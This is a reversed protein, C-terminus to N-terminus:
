FCWNVNISLVSKFSAGVHKPGYKRGDELPGIATSQATVLNFQTSTRENHEQIAYPWIDNDDPTHTHTQTHTHAHTGPTETM